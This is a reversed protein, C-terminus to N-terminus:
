RRQHRDQSRSRVRRERRERSRSRSRPRREGGGLRLRESIEAVRARAREAASESGAAAQVAQALAIQTQMAMNPFVAAGAAPRVIRVTKAVEIRLPRDCLMMGNLNLATQAESGQAFEVFAFQRSDGAIRCELVTGCYAFLQRLQEISVLPSLNGVHLTRGLEEYHHVAQPLALVAPVGLNHVGACGGPALSEGAAHAFRCDPRFCRGNQFDKCTSTGPAAAVQLAAHPHAVNPFAREGAGSAPLATHAFFVPFPSGSIERGNVRVRVDYDGRSPVTYSVSVSGDGCDRVAAAVCDEVPQGGSEVSVSVVAGNSHVRRRESDFCEVSFM